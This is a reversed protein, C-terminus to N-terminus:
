RLNDVSSEMQLARPFLINNEMHIHQHLDQEFEKLGDYFSRYTPCADEPATFDSSLRWMRAMLVGAADHEQTMMAIPRAVTDFCSAPRANGEACPVRL